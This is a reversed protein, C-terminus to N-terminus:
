RLEAPVRASSSFALEERVVALGAVLEVDIEDRTQRVGAIATLVEGRMVPISPAVEEEATTPAVTELRDGRDIGLPDNGDSAFPDYNVWAPLGGDQAHAAGAIVLTLLVQRLMTLISM